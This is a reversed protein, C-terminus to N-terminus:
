AWVGSSRASCTSGRVSISTRGSMPRASRWPRQSQLRQPGRQQQTVQELLEVLSGGCERAVVRGADDRLDISLRGPQIGIREIGLTEQAQASSSPPVADAVFSCARSSSIEPRRRPDMRLFVTKTENPAFDVREASRSEPRAV